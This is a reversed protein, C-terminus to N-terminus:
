QRGPDNDGSGQNFKGGGDAKRILLKSDWAGPRETVVATTDLALEREKKFKRLIAPDPKVDLNPLYIYPSTFVLIMKIVPPTSDENPLPTAATFFAPPVVSTVL